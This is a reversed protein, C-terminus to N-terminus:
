PSSRSPAQVMSLYEPHERLFSQVFPCRPVISEGRERAEDLVERVLRTGMGRGQLAQPVDTHLLFLRGDRRRYTLFAVAGDEQLEFRGLEVNDISM